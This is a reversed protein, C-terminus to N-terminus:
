SAPIGDPDGGPAEDTAAPHQPHLDTVIREVEFRTTAIRDRCERILAAARAVKTALHDVDLEDGELDDLILELEEVAEAYRLDKAPTPADTM